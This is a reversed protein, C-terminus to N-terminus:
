EEAPKMRVDSGSGNKIFHKQTHSSLVKQELFYIHIVKYFLKIKNKGNLKRPFSLKVKIRYGILKFQIRVSM